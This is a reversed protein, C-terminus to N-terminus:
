AQLILKGLETHPYLDRKTPTEKLVTNAVFADMVRQGVQNRRIQLHDCEDGGFKLERNVLKAETLLKVFDKNDELENEEFANKGQASIKGASVDYVAIKRKRGDAKESSAAEVDDSLRRHFYKSDTQDMLMMKLKKDKDEGDQIILVHFLTKQEQTLPEQVSEKWSGTHQAYFNNSVILNNSFIRSAGRQDLPLHVSMIDKVRYTCNKINQGRKGSFYGYLVTALGIVGVTIAVGAIIPAAVGAVAAATAALATGAVVLSSRFALKKLSGEPELKSLTKAIRNFFVSQYEPKEWGADFLKMKNPWQSPTREQFRDIIQAHAQIEVEVEVEMEVEVEADLGPASVKVKKPLPIADEGEAEWNERIAQLESKVVPAISSFLGCLKKLRKSCGQYVQRLAIKADQDEPITGYMKWPDYSDEDVLESEYKRALKVAKNVDPKEDVVTPARGPSLGLIMDLLPRRLANNMQHIQSKYSKDAEEEAHNAVWHETLAGITAVGDTGFIAEHDVATMMVEMGQDLHWKRMRGAGQGASPKTTKKNVLLLASANVDQETDSGFCRPQDFFTIVKKPDIKVASSDMVKGTAMEMMVYTERDVDFYQIAEIETGQLGERVKQAVFKNSLGRTLAGSDIVTKLHKNKKLTKM